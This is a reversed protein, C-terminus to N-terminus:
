FPRLTVRVIKWQEKPSDWEVTCVWSSELWVGMRNQAEVPGGLLYHAQNDDSQKTLTHGIEALRPSVLESRVQAECVDIATEPSDLRHKVVTPQGVAESKTATWKALTSNFFLTYEWEYTVWEFGKDISTAEGKMLWSDGREELAIDGVFEVTDGNVVRKRLEEQCSVEGSQPDNRDVTPEESDDQTPASEESVTPSVGARPDEAAGNNCAVLLLSAAVLVAVRRARM